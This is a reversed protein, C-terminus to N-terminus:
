DLVHHYFNNKVQLFFRPSSTKAYIYIIETASTFKRINFVWSSDAMQANQKLDSM